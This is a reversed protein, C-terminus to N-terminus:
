IKRFKLRKGCEKRYGEGPKALFKDYYDQPNIDKHTKSLHWRAPHM